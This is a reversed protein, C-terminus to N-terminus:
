QDSFNLPYSINDIIQYYTEENEFLYKEVQEIDLINDLLIQAERIVKLSQTQLGYNLSIVM